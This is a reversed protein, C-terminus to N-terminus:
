RRAFHLPLPLFIRHITLSSAFIYAIRRLHRPPPICSYHGSFSPPYADSITCHGDCHSSARLHFPLLACPPLVFHVHLILDFFFPGIFPHPHNVPYFITLGVFEAQFHFSCLTLTCLHPVFVFNSIGADPSSLFFNFAPTTADVATPSAPPVTSEDLTCTTTMDCWRGRSWNLPWPAKPKRALELRSIRLLRAGCEASLPAWAARLHRHVVPAM